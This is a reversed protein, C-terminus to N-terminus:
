RDIRGEGKVGGKKEEWASNEQPNSVENEISFPKGCVCQAMDTEGPTNWSRWSQINFRRERVFM